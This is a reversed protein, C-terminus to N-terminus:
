VSGQEIMAKSVKLFGAINAGSKLDFRDTYQTAAQSTQQYIAKMINSLKGEVEERTWTSFQANQAMELGSVAVGGANAAKGPGFVVKNKEFVEVAGPTSPMNAGEFVGRCGNKVLMNADEASIENEHASPFAFDVNPIAWPLQTEHFVATSSHKCYESVRRGRHNNKIDMMIALGEKTFGDPEYVTGSRDSFTLPRGGLQLLKEATYQAVNGSGSVLIRKGDFNEKLLDNIAEQGFFVSGYGTAEPRINSGGWSMSKGTLVGEYSSMQRKYQGFLYGIEKGGVGIDGAPVDRHAGIYRSLEQMFSQCFRMIEAESKGKPNFDSGGKGGGMPLTTLANKFIQEFGLFKIVSLNVTPDLRLGGKYPGLASSYQVRFGRAIRNSGKDDTWPVRFQIVRESEMLNKFVWAHSSDQEFVPALSQLVEEVAQLFEAQHPDRRRAEGLLIQSVETGSMQPVQQRVHQMPPLKDAIINGNGNGNGSMCRPMCLQANRSLLPKNQLAAGIKLANATSHCVGTNVFRQM